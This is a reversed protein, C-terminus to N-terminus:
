GYYCLVKVGIGINSITVSKFCGYIVEGTLVDELDLDDPLAFPDYSTVTLIGKGKEIRVGKSLNGRERLQDLKRITSRAQNGVTDQRKKHNDIEELVKLPVVIDNSGYSLFSSSDTLYVSTDLVYIKKAM